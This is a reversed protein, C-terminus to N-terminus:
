REGPGTSFRRPPRAGASPRLALPQTPRHPPGSLRHVAPVRAGLARPPAAPTSAGLATPPPPALPSPLPLLAGLALASSRLAPPRPAPPRSLACPAPIGAGLGRPGRRASAGRGGARPGGRLASAGRVSGAAAGPDWFRIRGLLRPRATWAGERLAYTERSIEAARRVHLPFASGRSGPPAPEPGPDPNRGLPHSPSQPSRPDLQLNDTSPRSDWAAHAQSPSRTQVKPLPM